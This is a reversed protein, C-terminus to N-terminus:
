LQEEPHLDNQFYIDCYHSFQDIHEKTFPIELLIEKLIQTYMFTQDQQNLPKETTISNLPAISIKVANPKFRELYTTLLPIISIIDPFVGKVKSYQQSWQNSDDQTKNIIYVRSVQTTTQLIYFVNESFQQSVITVITYDPSNNIFNMCEDVDSFTEVRDIIKTLDTITDQHHEINVNTLDEDLWVLALEGM